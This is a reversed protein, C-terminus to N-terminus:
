VNEICTDFLSPKFNFFPTQIQFEFWVVSIICVLCSIAYYPVTAAVNVTPTDCIDKLSMFAGALKMYRM